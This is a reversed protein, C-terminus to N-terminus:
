PVSNTPATPLQPTLDLKGCFCLIRARYHEFRRFGRADAKIAKIKSNFGETLASTIPHQFSTLLNVLIQPRFRCRSTSVRPGIKPQTPCWAPRCSGAVPRFQQFREQQAVAPQLGDEDMATVRASREVRYRRWWAMALEDDLDDFADVSMTEHDQGFVPDDFASESPEAVEASEGFVVLDFGCMGLRHDIEGGRWLKM